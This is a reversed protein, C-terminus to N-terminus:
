THGSKSLSLFSSWSQSENNWIVILLIGSIYNRIPADDRDCYPPPPPGNLKNINMNTLLCGIRASVKVVPIRRGIRIEQIYM